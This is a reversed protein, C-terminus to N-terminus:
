PDSRNPASRLPKRLPDSCFIRLTARSRLPASCGGAIRLTLLSQEARYVAGSFVLDCIAQVRFMFEKVPM